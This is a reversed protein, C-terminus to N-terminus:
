RRATPSRPRSRPRRARCAPRCPACGGPPRGRVTWAGVDRGGAVSESEIRVQILQKDGDDGVAGRALMVERYAGAVPHGQVHQAPVVGPLRGQGPDPARHDGERSIEGGGTDRDGRGGADRRPAPRPAAPRCPRPGLQRGDDHQVVIRPESDLYTRGPGGRQEDVRGVRLDAWDRHRAVLVRAAPRHQLREGGRPIRYSFWARLKRRQGSRRRAAADGSGGFPDPRYHAGQRASPNEDGAGSRDAAADGFVQNTRTDAREGDDVRVPNVRRVQSAGYVAGGIDARGFRVRQGPAQPRDVRRYHHIAVGSRESRGVQGLGQGPDRQDYRGGVVHRLLGKERM